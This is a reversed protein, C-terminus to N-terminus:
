RARAARACPAMGPRPQRCIPVHHRHHPLLRADGSRRLRRLSRRRAALVSDSRHAVEIGGAAEPPRDGPFRAYLASPAEPPGEAWFTGPRVDRREWVPRLVTGGAILMERRFVPADQYVPLSPGRWERRWLGDPERTWGDDAPDAGTVVVSEGSAARFAIRAGPAGGERPEISERYVGEHILVTDGPRLVGRATARSITRWPREDTGDNDDSAGPHNQAVVFTRGPAQPAEVRRHAPPGRAGSALTNCYRFRPPGHM